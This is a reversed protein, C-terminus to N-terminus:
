NRTVNEDTDFHFNIEDFKIGTEETVMQRFAQKTKEVNESESHTRLEEDSRYFIFVGLQKQWTSFFVRYILSHQEKAWSILRRELAQEM